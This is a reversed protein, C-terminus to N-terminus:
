KNIRNLTLEVPWPMNQMSCLELDIQTLSAKLLCFLCFEFMSYVHFFPELGFLCFTTLEVDPCLLKGCTMHKNTLQDPTTDDGPHTACGIFQNDEKLSDHYLRHVSQIVLELREQLEALSQVSLNSSIIGDRCKEAM